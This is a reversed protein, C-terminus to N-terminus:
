ATRLAPLLIREGARERIGDLREQIIGKETPNGDLSELWESAERRCRDLHRYYDRDLVDSLGSLMHELFSGLVSKQERLFGDVRLVFDNPYEEVLDFAGELFAEPGESFRFMDALFLMKQTKSTSLPIEAAKGRERKKWHRLLLSIHSLAFRLQEARVKGGRKPHPDLLIALVRDTAEEEGPSRDAEGTAPDIRGLDTMLAVTELVPYKWDEPRAHPRLHSLMERLAERRKRAHKEDHYPFRLVGIREEIFATKAEFMRLIDAHTKKRVGM